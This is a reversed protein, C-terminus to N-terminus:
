EDKKKIKIQNFVDKLDIKNFVTNEQIQNIIDNILSLSTSNTVIIENLKRYDIVLKLREKKLILLLFIKYLFKNPRIWKKYLLDDLYDKIFQQKELKTFILFSSKLESEKLVIVHNM